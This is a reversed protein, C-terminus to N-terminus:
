VYLHMSIFVTCVLMYTYSNFLISVEDKRKLEGQLQQIHDDTRGLFGKLKEYSCSQLHTSLEDHSGEFTCSCFGCTLHMFCKIYMHMRMCRFAHAMRVCVWARMCVCVCVSMFASPCVCLACICMLVCVCICLSTYVVCLCACM